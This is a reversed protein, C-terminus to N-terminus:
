TYQINFVKFYDYIMNFHGLNLRMWCHEIFDPSYSQANSFYVIEIHFGYLMFGVGIEGLLYATMLTQFSIM